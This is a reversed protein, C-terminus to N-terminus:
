SSPTRGRYVATRLENAYHGLDPMGSAEAAAIEDEL